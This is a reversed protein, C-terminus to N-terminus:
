QTVRRLGADAGARSRRERAWRRCGRPACTCEVLALGGGAGGIWGQCSQPECLLASGESPFRGPRRLCVAKPISSRDMWGPRQHFEHLTSTNGRRCERTLRPAETGIDPPCSEAHPLVGFGGGSVQSSARGAIACYVERDGDAFFIAERRNGRQTVHHPLHPVVVRALRAM